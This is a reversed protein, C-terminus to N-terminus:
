EGNVKPYITQWTFTKLVTTHLCKLLDFWVWEKTTDGQCTTGWRKTVALKDAAHCRSPGTVKWFRLKKRM